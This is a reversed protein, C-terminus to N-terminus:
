LDPCSKQCDDPCTPKASWQLELGKGLQIGWNKCLDPCRKQCDDPCTPKASWQLELGKGLQIGFNTWLDPCRKQGQDVCIPKAPWQTELGKGRQIGWTTCLDPCGKQCQDLSNKQGVMNPRTRQVVLNGICKIQLSKCGYIELSGWLDPYMAEGAGNKLSKIYNTTNKFCLKNEINVQMHKKNKM